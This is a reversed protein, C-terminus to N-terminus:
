RKKLGLRDLQHPHLNSSIERVENIAEQALDSLESLGNPSQDQGLFSNTFQQLENKIILLDQGLGDHLESAIRKREAEQTAILRRSFEEQGAKAKRLGAIRREYMAGIIEIVALASLVRFWWTAWFPPNIKIRVAVGEENWVGDNNSGKVRFVYDGPDLNTYYAVRRVGCYVWDADFGEMMYAYQNKASNTYNLAAFEFSFVNEQHSLEILKIDALEQEFRVKKDFIKFATLAVPPVFHNEAIQEPQFWTVGDPGGFYLEGNKRRCYSGRNFEYGQLGDNVDFNRFKKGEPTHPNFCSLGKNTSLWLNGNNDPLIGKIFGNPLGDKEQYHVFRKTVPDFRDLGEVTGFWLIGTEDEYISWVHNHLLSNLNQPDHKYWVLAETQPDYHALGSSSAVWLSANAAIHITHISTNPMLHTEVHASLKKAARDSNARSWSARPDLVLKYLGSGTGVWLNGNRDEKISHMLRLDFRGANKLFDQHAIMKGAEPFYANVGNDTGIWLIGRRDEQLSWVVTERIGLASESALKHRTFTQASGTSAQPDLRCLGEGATGFWLQGLKDECIAIVYNGSLSNPNDAARRLLQFSSPAAEMRNLGNATGIWLAGSQDECVPHAYNSALSFPNEPVHIYRRFTKTEPDFRNLGGGATGIWLRGSQDAFIFNLLNQSLSRADNPDHLFCKYTESHPAFEILGDHTALWLNGQRDEAISRVLNRPDIKTSVTLAFSYRKFTNSKRELRNLGNVTGVWLEGRRDEYIAMVGNDSLTTPDNPDHLYATLQQRKRDFCHLEKGVGIWLMGFRDELIARINNNQRSTSANPAHLYRLFKEVGRM